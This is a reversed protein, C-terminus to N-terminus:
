ITIDLVKGSHETEGTEEPVTTGENEPLAQVELARRRGQKGRRNERGVPVEKSDRSKGPSASHSLRILLPGEDSM